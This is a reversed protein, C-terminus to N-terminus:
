RMMQRKLFLVPSLQQFWYRERRGERKQNVVLLPLPLLIKIKKQSKM